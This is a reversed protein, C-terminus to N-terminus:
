EGAQRRRSNITTVMLFTLLSFSVLVASATHYIDVSASVAQWTLGDVAAYVTAM